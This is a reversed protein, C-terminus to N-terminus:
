NSVRISILMDLDDIRDSARVALRIGRGEAYVRASRIEDKIPDAVSSELVQDTAKRGFVLAIKFFGNRPLLYVQVRKKTKIHFSWGYKEGGFHWEGVAGPSAELAFAALHQWHQISEGLASELAAASPAKQKDTFFSQM